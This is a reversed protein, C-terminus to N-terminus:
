NLLLVQSGSSSYVSFWLIARMNTGDARVAVRFSLTSGRYPTASVTQSLDGFATSSADSPGSMLACYRGELCGTSSLTSRFALGSPSSFTQWGPPQLGATGGAEFGLNTPSQGFLGLPAALAFLAFRHM